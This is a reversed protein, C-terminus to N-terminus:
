GAHYIIKGYPIDAIHELRSEWDAEWYIVPIIGKDILAM